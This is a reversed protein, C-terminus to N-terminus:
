PRPPRAIDGALSGLVDAFKLVDLEIVNHGDAAMGVFMARQKGALGLDDMDPKSSGGRSAASALVSSSRRPVTGGRARRSERAKTRFVKGQM